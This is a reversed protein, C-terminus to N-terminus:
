SSLLVIPKTLGSSCSAHIYSFWRLFTWISSLSKNTEQEIHMERTQILKDLHIGEIKQM